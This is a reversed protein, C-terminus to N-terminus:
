SYNMKFELYTNIARVRVFANIGTFDLTLITETFSNDNSLTTVGFINFTGQANVFGGNIDEVIGIQTTNLYNLTIDFRSRTMSVVTTPHPVFYIRYLTFDYYTRGTEQYSNVTLIGKYMLAIGLNNKAKDYHTINIIPTRSYITSNLFQYFYGDKVSGEFLYHSGKLYTSGTYNQIALLRWYSRYKAPTEGLVGNSDEIGVYSQSDMDFTLIGDGLLFTFTVKSGTGQKILSDVVKTTDKFSLATINADNTGQMDRIQPLIITIAGTVAALTIAILLVMAIVSSVGKKARQFRRLWAFM